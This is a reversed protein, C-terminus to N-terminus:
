GVAVSLLAGSDASVTISGLAVSGLSGLGFGVESGPPIAGSGVDGGSTGVSGAGGGSTGVSGAGGGSTGASGAGGGSTAM